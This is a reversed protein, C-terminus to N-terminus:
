AYSTVPALKSGREVSIRQVYGSEALTALPDEPLGRMRRWEKLMPRVDRWFAGRFLEEAAVLDCKEQLPDLAERDV